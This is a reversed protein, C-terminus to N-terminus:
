RDEKSFRLLFSAGSGVGRSRATISGGMEEMYSKCISLGLGRRGKKTSYGDTFIKELQAPTMGCGSDTVELYKGHDDEYILFRIFREERRTNKMAEISNNILSLFIHFLKIKQFSVKIPAQIDRLIRIGYKEVSTWHLRIADELVSAVPLERIYTDVGAYRQQSVIISNVENVKEYLRWAHYLLQQQLELFLSGMRLIYKMLKGSKESNSFFDEMDPLNKEIMDSIDALDNFVKDCAHKRLMGASANMSNLSNGMDHLIGSAIEAMGERQAQDVLRKYAADLKEILVSGNLSTSIHSAIIQYMREGLPGPEFLVFGLFDDQAHLMHAFLTAARENGALMDSLYKPSNESIIGGRLASKEGTYEFALSYNEFPDDEGAKDFLFIRCSRIGLLHLKDALSEMLQKKNFKTVFLRGIEQLLQYTMKRYTKRFIEINTIRERVMVQAQHFINGSWLLADPENVLYPLLYQRFITVIDRITSSQSFSISSLESSLVDLFERGAKRRYESVFTELLGPFDFDLYPFRNALKLAIESKEAETMDSLKKEIKRRPAETIMRCSSPRCGCSRRFIIRGTVETCHDVSGKELYEVMKECAKYGLDRWPFVITTIEPSSFKGYEGAEYSVLAVDEPIRFGRQKLEKLLEATELVYMSVIADFKAKREDLLVSLANVAREKTGTGAILEEDVYLEPHYIGYEKMTSIYSENRGDPKMTPIFAIRRCGHENVLHLLLERTYIDGSFYVGPIEEFYSGISFLPMDGFRRMFDDYNFMPGAKTWALFILGDIDYQAIHDLLMDYRHVADRGAYPSFGGFRIINVDFRGAAEFIGGMLQSHFADDVNEDLFGITYRNKERKSADRAIQM